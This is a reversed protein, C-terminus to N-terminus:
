IEKIIFFDDDYLSEIEIKKVRRPSKRGYFNLM